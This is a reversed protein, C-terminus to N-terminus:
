VWLVSTDSDAARLFQSRDIMRQEFRDLASSGRIDETLAPGGDRADLDEGGGTVRMEIRSDGDQDVSTLYGELGYVQVRGGWLARLQRMLEPGGLSAISCALLYVDRISSRGIQRSIHWLALDGEGLGEPPSDGGHDVILSRVHRISARGDTADRPPDVTVRCTGAPGLDVMPTTRAGHSTMGGSGHGVLVGLSGDPGARELARAYGQVLSSQDRGLGAVGGRRATRRLREEEAVGAAVLQVAWRHNDTAIARDGFAEHATLLVFPM